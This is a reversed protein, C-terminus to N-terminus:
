RNCVYRTQYIRVAFVILQFLHWTKVLVLNGAGEGCGRYGRGASDGGRAIKFIGPSDRLVCRLGRPLVGVLRCVYCPKDFPQIPGHM